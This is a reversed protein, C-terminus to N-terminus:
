VIPWHIRPSRGEGNLAVPTLCAMRITGEKEKAIKKLRGEANVAVPNGTIAM